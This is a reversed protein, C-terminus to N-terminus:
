PQNFFSWAAAALSLKTDNFYLIHGGVPQSSATVTCFTVRSGADCGEWSECTTEPDSKSCAVLEWSTTSGPVNGFCLKRTDSNPGGFTISKTPGTKCHNANAWGSTATKGFAYPIVTDGSAHFSIMPVAAKASCTGSVNPYGSIPSFGGFLDSGACAVQHTLWGGNSIGTMFMRKPDIATATKVKAQVDLIFEIDSSVWKNGIGQPTIVAFGETDALLRWGSGYNAPWTKFPELGAHMEASETAGHADIVVGVPASPNYNAPAYVLFTRSKGKFTYTCVRDAGADIPGTCPDVSGPPAVRDEPGGSGSDSPDQAGPSAPISGADAGASAGCAAVSVPIAALVSAAMWAGFGTLFGRKGVTM